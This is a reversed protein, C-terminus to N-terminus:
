KPVITLKPRMIKKATTADTAPEVPKAATPKHTRITSPLARAAPATTPHDATNQLDLQPEPQAAQYIDDFAMGQGTDSAFIGIVNRIPVVVDHAIGGFRTQFTIESNGMVLQHTVEWAVNLVIESDRVYQMPVVVNADVFVRLYPTYGQDTCWEHVARILYPKSSIKATAM